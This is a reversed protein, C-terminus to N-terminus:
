SYQVKLTFQISDGTSLSVVPFTASLYMNGASVADFLGAEDVSYAAAATMLQVVQYTDNTTGGSSTQQTSTGAIRSGVASSLATDALAATRGATTAGVGMGVFSPETAGTAGNKLRNTTIARGASTLITNTGFSM